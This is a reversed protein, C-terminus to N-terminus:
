NSSNLFICGKGHTKYSYPLSQPSIRKSVWFHEINVTELGDGEEGRGQTTEWTAPAEDNTRCVVLCYCTGEM